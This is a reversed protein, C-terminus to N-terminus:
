RRVAGSFLKSTNQCRCCTTYELKIKLTDDSPVVLEVDWRRRHKPHKESWSVVKAFYKTGHEAVDRIWRPNIATTRRAVEACVPPMAHLSKVLAGTVMVEYM